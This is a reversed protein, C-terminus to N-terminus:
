SREREYRAGTAGIHFHGREIMQKAAIRYEALVCRVVVFPPQTTREGTRSVRTWQPGNTVATLLESYYTTM